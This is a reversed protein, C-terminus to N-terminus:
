VLIFGFANCIAESGTRSADAPRASAIVHPHTRARLKGAYRLPNRVSLAVVRSAIGPTIFGGMQMDACKCM